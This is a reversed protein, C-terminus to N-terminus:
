YTTKGLLLNKCQVFILVMLPVGFGLSLGELIVISVYVMWKQDEIVPRFKILGNEGGLNAIMCIGIFSLWLLTGELVILFFIFKALNHRGICNNIWTCHHDYQPICCQCIPCHHERPHM